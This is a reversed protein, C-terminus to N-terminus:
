LLPIVDKETRELGNVRMNFVNIQEQSLARKIYRFAPVTEVRLNTYTEGYAVM